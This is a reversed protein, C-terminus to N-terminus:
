WFRQTAPLFSNSPPIPPPSSSTSLLYLTVDTAVALFEPGAPARASPRLSSQPQSVGDQHVGSANIALLSMYNRKALQCLGDM